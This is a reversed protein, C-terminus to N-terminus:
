EVNLDRIATSLEYMCDKEPYTVRINYKEFIWKAAMKFCCGYIGCTECTELTTIHLTTPCQNNLQNIISSNEEECNLYLHNINLNILYDNLQDIYYIDSKICKDRTSLIFYEPGNDIFQIYLYGDM